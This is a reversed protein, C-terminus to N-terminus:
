QGDEYMADVIISAIHASMTAGPPCTAQLWAMQDPPLCVHVAPKHSREAAPIGSKDRVMQVLGRSCGIARAIARDPTEPHQQLYALVAKTKDGHAM